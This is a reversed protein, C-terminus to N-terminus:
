RCMWELVLRVVWGGVRGETQRPRSGMEQRDGTQVGVSGTQMWMQRDVVGNLSRGYRDVMEM